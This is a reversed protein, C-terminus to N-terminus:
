LLCKGMNILKNQVGLDLSFEREFAQYKEKDLEDITFSFSLLRTDKLWDEDSESLDVTYINKEKLILRVVRVEKSSSFKLQSLKPLTGEEQKKNEVIRVYLKADAAYKVFLSWTRNEKVPLWKDVDKQAWFCDIKANPKELELSEEIAQFIPKAEQKQQIVKYLDPTKIIPKVEKATVASGKTSAVSRQIGLAHNQVVQNEKSFIAELDKEKLKGTKQQSEQVLAAQKNSSFDAFAIEKQENIKELIKLSQKNEPNLEWAKSALKLAYAQEGQELATVALNSLTASQALDREHIVNTQQKGLTDYKIIMQRVVNINQLDEENIKESSGDLLEQAKNEAIARQKQIEKLESRIAQKNKLNVQLEYFTVMAQIGFILLTLSVLLIAGRVVFQRQEVARQSKKVFAFVEKELDLANLRPVIRSVDKADLLVNSVIYYDYRRRIFNQEKVLLKDERSAKDYIAKALTDHSLELKM